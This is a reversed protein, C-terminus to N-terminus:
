ALLEIAIEAFARALDVHESISAYENAQHMADDDGASYGVSEIGAELFLAKAYTNGGMGIIQPVGGTVREGVERITRVFSSTKYDLQHPEVGSVVEVKFTSALGECQAQLWARTSEITMGPVMRCDIWITCNGPVINAAAGGSIEGVNLTYDGLLEHTEHPIVRQNIRCIYEAMDSIANIGLQPTSGHAQKGTATVCFVVRGKEAVQVVKMNGGIDPVLSWDAKIVNEELLFHLGYDIGDEGQVEEDAVIGVDIGGALEIDCDQLLKLMLLTAAMAGKNDAVGRAVVRDNEWDVVLSFPDSDWGEGPPVVDSHVPIFLRKGEQSGFHIMLNERKPNRAYVEYALGMKELEPKLFSTVRTEEGPITLYDYQGLRSAPINVTQKAVLERLMDVWWQALEQRNAEVYAVIKELKEQKNMM